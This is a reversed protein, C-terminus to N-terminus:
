LTFTINFRQDQNLVLYTANPLNFAQYEVGIGCCQANYTLGIRQQLLSKDRVNLDFAYVGGYHGGGFSMKTTSNLYTNLALQPNLPSSERLTFGNDTQFWSG